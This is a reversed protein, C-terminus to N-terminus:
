ISVDFTSLSRNDFAPLPTNIENRRDLYVLMNSHMDKLLTTFSTRLYLIEKREYFSSLYTLTNLHNLILDMLQLATSTDKVRGTLIRYYQRMFAESYFVTSYTADAYQTSFHMLRNLLRVLQLDLFVYRFPKRDRLPYNENNKLYGSADMKDIAEQLLEVQSRVSDSTSQVGANIQLVLATGLVCLIFAIQHQRNTIVQSVVYLVVFAVGVAASSSNLLRKVAFIVTEM